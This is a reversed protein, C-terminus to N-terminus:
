EHSIRRAWPAAGVVPLRGQAAALHALALSAPIAVAADRITRGTDRRVGAAGLERWAWLSFPLVVVPATVVGPTYGRLGASAALHGFAHLGFGVLGAQFLRSRGGSRAGDASAAAVIVGMASIATRMHAPSLGAPFPGFVPPRGGARRANRRSWRVMTFWEEADHVTWALLLGWTVKRSLPSGPAQERAPGDRYEADFNRAM